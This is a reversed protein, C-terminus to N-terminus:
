HVLVWERVCWAFACLIGRSYLKAMYQSCICGCCAVLLHVSFPIKPLMRRRRGRRRWPGFVIPLAANPPLPHPPTASAYHRSTRFSKPSNILNGGVSRIVTCSYNYYPCPCWFAFSRILLIWVCKVRIRSCAGRM